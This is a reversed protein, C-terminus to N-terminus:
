ARAERQLGQLAEANALLDEVTSSESGSATSDTGDFGIDSLLGAWAAGRNKRTRDFQKSVQRANTLIADEISVLDISIDDVLSAALYESLVDRVDQLEVFCKEMGNGMM